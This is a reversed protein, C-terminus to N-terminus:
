NHLHSSQFTMPVYILSGAESHSTEQVFSFHRGAAKAIIV